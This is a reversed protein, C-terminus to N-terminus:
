TLCLATARRDQAPCIGKVPSWSCKGFGQTYSTAPSAETSNGTFGKLHLFIADGSVLPRNLIFSITM